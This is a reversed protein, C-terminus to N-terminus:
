AYLQPRSGGAWSVHFDLAARLRDALQATHHQVHRLTVLQHELKSMRYHFGTEQRHLDMADVSSDVLGNVIAWYRLAQDKTYPRPILPLASNPDPPGPIGDENQNDRQHEAWPQFSAADRALYFHTFFLVHYAVQWFANTPRADVWLDEPCKEIAERLMTLAAHYQNKLADKFAATALTDSSVGSSNDM